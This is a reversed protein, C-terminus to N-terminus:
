IYHLIASFVSERVHKVPLTGHDKIDRWMMNCASLRDALADAVDTARYNTFTGPLMDNPTRGSQKFLFRQTWNVTARHVAIRWFNKSHFQLQTGCRESQKM